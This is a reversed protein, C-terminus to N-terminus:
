TTKFDVIDLPHDQDDWRWRGELTWCIPKGERRGVLVRGLIGKSVDHVTEGNRLTHVAM